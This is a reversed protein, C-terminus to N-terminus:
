LPKVVCNGTLIHSFALNILTKSLFINLFSSNLIEFCFDTGTAPTATMGGLEAQASILINDLDRKPASQGERGVFTIEVDILVRDVAQLYFVTQIFLFFYFYNCNLNCHSNISLFSTCYFELTCFFVPIKRRAHFIACYALVCLLM